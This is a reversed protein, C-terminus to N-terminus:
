SIKVFLFFLDRVNLPESSLFFTYRELNECVRSLEELDFLEGIPMGWGALLWEHLHWEPTTCPWVEFSRSDGAVAAIGKDWLFQLLDESPAVGINEPKTTAYRKQLLDRKSQSMTEYQHIYGSRIFLIDGPRFDDPTIGSQDKAAQLLLSFPVGYATFADIETEQHHQLAWKYWDIFVARGAIGKTAIGVM